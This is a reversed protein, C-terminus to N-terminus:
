FALLCGLNGSVPRPKEERGQTGELLPSTGLSVTEACRFAVHELGEGWGRLVGWFQSHYSHVLTVEGRQLLGCERYIFIRIQCGLDESIRAGEERGMGNRLPWYSGDSCRHKGCLELKESVVTGDRDM